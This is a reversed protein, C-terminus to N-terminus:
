WRGARGAEAQGTPAGPGGQGCGVTTTGTLFTNELRLRTRAIFRVAPHCWPNTGAPDQLRADRGPWAPLLAGSVVPNRCLRCAIRFRPPADTAEEGITTGHPALNHGRRSPAIMRRITVPLPGSPREILTLSPGGGRGTTSL